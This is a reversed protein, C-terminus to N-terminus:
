DETPTGLATVETWHVTENTVGLQNDWDDVAIVAYRVNEGDAASTHLFSTTDPGLYEVRHALWVLGGDGDDYKEARFVEYRKLDSETNPTWELLVGDERPTATLGTVPAPAVLDGDTTASAPASVPSRNGGKDVAVVTYAYTSGHSITLDTYTSGSM